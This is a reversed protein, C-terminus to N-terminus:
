ECAYVYMFVCVCTRSITTVWCTNSALFLWLYVKCIEGDDLMLSWFELTKRVDCVPLSWAPQRRHGSDKGYRITSCSLFYLCARLGECVECHAARHAPQNRHLPSRQMSHEFRAVMSKVM